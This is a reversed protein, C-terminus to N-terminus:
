QATISIGFTQFYKSFVDFLKKVGGGGGKIPSRTKQKEEEKILLNTCPDM